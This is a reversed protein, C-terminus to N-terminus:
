LLKELSSVHAFSFDSLQKLTDHLALRGPLTPHFVGDTVLLVKKM